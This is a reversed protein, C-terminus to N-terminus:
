HLLEVGKPGLAEPMFSLGDRRGQLDLGMRIEDAGRVRAHLM